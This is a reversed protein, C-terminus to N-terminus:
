DEPTNPIEAWHTPTPMDYTFYGGIIGGNPHYTAVHIQTNLRENEYNTKTLLGM